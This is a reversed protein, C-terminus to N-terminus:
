MERISKGLVASLTKLQKHSAKPIDITMRSIDNKLSMKHKVILRYQLM